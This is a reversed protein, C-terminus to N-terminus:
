SNCFPLLLALANLLGRASVRARTSSCIDTLLKARLEPLPAADPQLCHTLADAGALAPADPSSCFAHALIFARARGRFM